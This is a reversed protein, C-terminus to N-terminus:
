IPVCTWVAYVAFKFTTRPDLYQSSSNDAKGSTAITLWCQERKNGGSADVGINNITAVM